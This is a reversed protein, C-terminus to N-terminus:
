HTRRSAPQRPIDGSPRGRRGVCALLEREAVRFSVHFRSGPEVRAPRALRQSMRMCKNASAARRLVLLAPTLVCKPYAFQPYASESRAFQPRSRLLSAVASSAVGRVCVSRGARPREASSQPVGSAVRVQPFAAGALRRFLVSRPSEVRCSASLEVQVAMGRVRASTRNTNRGGSWYRTRIQQKLPAHAAFFPCVPFKWV